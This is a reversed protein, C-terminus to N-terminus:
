QEFDFTYKEHVFGFWSGKGVVMMKAKQPMKQYDEKQICIKNFTGTGLQTSKLCSDRNGNKTKEVEIIRAEIQGFTSTYIHGIGLKLSITSCLFVIWLVFIIVVAQVFKRKSFNSLDVNGKKYETYYNISAILTILWIVPNVIISWSHSPFFNPSLFVYFCLALFICLILISIKEKFGMDKEPASKFHQAVVEHRKVIKLFENLSINTLYNSFTVIVDATNTKKVYRFNLFNTNKTKKLIDKNNCKLHFTLASKHKTIKVDSWEWFGLGEIDLGRDYVRLAQPMSILKLTFKLVFFLACYSYIIFKRSEPTILPYYHYLAYGALAIVLLVLANVNLAKRREVFVQIVVTKDPRDTM